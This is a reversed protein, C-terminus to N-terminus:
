WKSTNFARLSTLVQGCNSITNFGFTQIAAAENGCLNIPNNPNNGVFVRFLTPNSGTSVTDEFPIVNYVLRTFQSPFTSSIKGGVIPAQGDISQLVAGHRRDNFGKSQAIYQAISFPMIGNPDAAVASGDHEEVPLNGPNYHDSVWAPLTTANIGVIGAFFSRTGSGPQPVLLDIPIDTAGPTVPGNTPVYRHTGVTVPQGTSYLTTLQASTFSNVIASSPGVAVTVADEAFPIYQLLGDTAANAGPGSSSRAFDFCNKGPLKSGPYTAVTTTPYGPTGTLSLRLASVGEGSGNPRSVGTCDTTSKPTITDHTVIPNSGPQFADWSGLGAASLDTAIQNMVDQITDSGAGAVATPGAPDASAPGATGLLAGVILACAGAGAFFGKLKM